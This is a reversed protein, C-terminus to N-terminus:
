NDIKSASVYKVPVFPPPPLDMTLEVVESQLPPLSVPPTSVVPTPASYVPAPTSYVPPPTYAPQSVPTSIPQTSMGSAARAAELGGRLEPTRGVTSGGSSIGAAARAAELGGGFKASGGTGANTRAAELGGGFKNSGGGTRAAELGGGFVKKEFAQNKKATIKAIYAEERALEDDESM